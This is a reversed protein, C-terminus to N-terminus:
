HRLKGDHRIIYNQVMIYHIIKTLCINLQTICLGIIVWLVVITSRFDLSSLMNGVEYFLSGKLM